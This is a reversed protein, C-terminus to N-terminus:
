LGKGSVYMCCEYQQVTIIEVSLKKITGKAQKQLGITIM